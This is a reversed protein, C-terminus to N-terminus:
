SAKAEIKLLADNFGKPTLSSGSVKTLQLDSINKGVVMPKFNKIFDTQFKISKPNTAEMKATASTIINKKLTLTIGITEPGAPSTYAGDATYTGDKYAVPVVAAPVEPVVPAPAPEQAVPTNVAAPTSTPKNGFVYMMTGIVLVAVGAIVYLNM